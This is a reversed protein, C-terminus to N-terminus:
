LGGFLLAEKEEDLAGGYECKEFAEAYKVAAGKQEGYRAVLEARFRNAIEENRPMRQDFLWKRREDDGSPVQDLTGKNYPLWEYMQSTHRHLMDVKAEAVDDISIVVDGQFPYPKKFSDCLYMVTPNYQLHPTEPCNNPVTVVYSSDQVLQSTYRHDPHYDNPRHTLILDPAFERILRIFMSRYTLNPEIGGNPIPLVQSEVGIVGASAAAEAIRRNVLEIGGIEHHGTGGNTASVFRVTFGKKRWLAAAGGCQVECDDPHAGIVLIRATTATM